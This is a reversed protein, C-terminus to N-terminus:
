RPRKVEIRYFRQDAPLLPAIAVRLDDTCVTQGAAGKFLGSQLPWWQPPVTGLDRSAYIRYMRSTQSPFAIQLQNSSVKAFFARFVSQSNFPHTLAVYERVNTMGDGDADDNPNLALPRRATGRPFASREEESYELIFRNYEATARGITLPRVVVNDFWAPTARWVWLAVAGNTLPAEDAVDGFLDEGNVVVRLQDNLAEVHVHLNSNLPVGKWQWALMEETGDRRRFLRRYKNREDMEFRYYNSANQYRFLLGIGGDRGTGVDVDVAYDSWATAVEATWLVYTGQRDFISGWAPGHILSSQVVRGGSVAWASPAYLTGQDVVRWGDLSGAEFDQSLIAENYEFLWSRESRDGDPFVSPWRPMNLPYCVGLTMPGTTLTVQRGDDSVEAALVELTEETDYAALDVAEAGSVPKDFLVCVKNSAAACVNTVAPGSQDRPTVVVSSYVSESAAGAGNYATVRYSYFTEPKLERDVYDTTSVFAVQQTDRWVAYGTVGSEADEAPSWALRCSEHDLVESVLGTPTSPATADFVLLNTIVFQNAADTAYKDLYPSYTKVSLRAAAPDFQLIRLYGDGGRPWWQYNAMMQHVQNGGDGVDMRYAGAPWADHAAHGNLVLAINPHKRVLKDWLEVGNNVVGPVDHPDSRHYGKMGHWWGDGYLYCHTLLIVRRQPYRRILQDAWAIVSDRPAWELAVVLWDVGGATLLAGMNDSRGYPTSDVVNASAKFRQLPFSRNFLETNRTYDSNITYDHNGYAVLYPVVGDLSAMVNSANQWKIQNTSSALGGNEVLDGEHLVFRINLNTAQDAIWATQATFYPLLNKAPDTYCQTDPLVILSFPEQGSARLVALLFLGVSYVKSITRM